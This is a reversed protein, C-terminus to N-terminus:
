FRGWTLPMSTTNQSTTLPLLDLHWQALNEGGPGPGVAADLLFMAPARQAVIGSLTQALIRADYTAGTINLVYVVSPVSSVPFPSGPLRPAINGSVAVIIFCFLTLM